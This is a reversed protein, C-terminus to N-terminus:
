KERKERNAKLEETIDRFDHDGTVLAKISRAVKLAIDADVPLTVHQYGPKWTEMDKKTKYMQRINIYKSGEIVVGEIQYAKHETVRILKRKSM